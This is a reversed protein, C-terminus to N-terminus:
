LDFLGFNRCKEKWNLKRTIHENLLLYVYESTELWNSKINCLYHYTLLAVKQGEYDYLPRSLQRYITPFSVLSTVTPWSSFQPSEFHSSKVPFDHHKTSSYTYLLYNWTELLDLVAVLIAWLILHPDNWGVFCERTQASWNVGCTILAIRDFIIPRKGHFIGLFGFLTQLVKGTIHSSHKQRNESSRSNTKLSLNCRYLGDIDASSHFLKV